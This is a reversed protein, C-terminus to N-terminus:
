GWEKVWPVRRSRTYGRYPIAGPPGPEREKDSLIPGLHRRSNSFRAVGRV